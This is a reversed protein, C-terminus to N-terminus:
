LEVDTMMALYEIDSRMKMDKLEDSTLDRFLIWYEEGCQTVQVLEANEHIEESEGDSVILPSCNDVFIDESVPVDSIYNNGNLRLDAVETQDALTITYRKENM